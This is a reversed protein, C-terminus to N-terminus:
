LYFKVDHPLEWYLDEDTMGPFRRPLMDLIRDPVHLSPKGLSDYYECYSNDFRRTYGVYVVSKCPCEVIDESPGTEGWKAAYTIKANFCSMCDAHSRYYELEEKKEYLERLSELERQHAEQEQEEKEQQMRRECEEYTEEKQVDCTQSSASGVPESMMCAFSYIIPGIISFIVVVSVLALFIAIIPNIAWLNSWIQALLGPKEM